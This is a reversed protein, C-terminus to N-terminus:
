ICNKFIKNIDYYYIRKFLDHVSDILYNNITRFDSVINFICNKQISFNQEKNCIKYNEITRFIKSNKIVQVKCETKQFPVFEVVILIILM